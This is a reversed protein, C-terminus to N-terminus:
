HLHRDGARDSTFHKEWFTSRPLACACTGGSLPSVGDSPAWCGWSLLASMWDPESKARELKEEEKEKRNAEKGQNHNNEERDTDERNTEKQDQWRREGETEAKGQFARISKLGVWIYLWVGFKVVM